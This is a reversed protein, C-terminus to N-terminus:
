SHVHREKHAQARLPLRAGARDVVGILNFARDHGRLPHWEMELASPFGQVGAFNLM